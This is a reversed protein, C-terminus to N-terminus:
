GAIIAPGSAGEYVVQNVEDRNVGFALAQRVLVDDTPPRQTNVFLGAPPAGDAGVFMGGAATVLLLVMIRPKTLTVYDRWPARAPRGGGRFASATTVAAAALALGGLALHAGAPAGLSLLRLWPGASM